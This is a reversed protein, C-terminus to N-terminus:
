TFLCNQQSTKSVQTLNTGLQAAVDLWADIDADAPQQDRSLLFLTTFNSAQVVAWRPEYAQVIYNPGACDVPPPGPPFQVRFVGAEGYGEDAPSAIGQIRIEQEGAQCGNLVNVTGNENLTYEAYICSCGETEGFTSGAVQYWRGLYADLSFDATPKPYFCQGDWISDTINLMPSEADQRAKMAPMANAMAALAFLCKQVKM